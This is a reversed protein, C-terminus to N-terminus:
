SDESGEAAAPDFDPDDDLDQGDDSYYWPEEGGPAFRDPRRTQRRPRDTRREAQRDAPRVGPAPDGPGAGGLADPGLDGQVEAAAPRRGRRPAPQGGERRALPPRGPRRGRAPAYADPQQDPFVVYPYNALHRPLPRQTEAPRDEEETTRRRAGGEQARIGPPMGEEPRQRAGQPAEPPTRRVRGTGPGRFDQPILRGGAPLPPTRGRPPTQQENTAAGRRRGPPTDGGTAAQRPQGMGQEDFQVRRPPRREPEAPAPIAPAYAPRHRPRQPGPQAPLPMPQPLPPPPAPPAAVAAGAGAMGGGGGGGGGGGPPPPGGPGGGGGGPAPPAPPPPPPAPPGAAAGGGPGAGAGAGIGTPLAAPLPINEAFEDGEMLLDEQPKPEYAQQHDGYPKLRDISVVKTGKVHTWDPHPAIRVMTESGTPESCVTWPGTYRVTLKRPTGDKAAPTFLFVKAGPVFSKRDRHYQRRQRRVAELGEKRVFEHARHIRENLRRVYEHHNRQGKLLEDEPARFMMDLPQSCNRGFLIQYPAMGTSRCVATRIAMLAWPLAEEWSHKDQQVMVKLMPGLDRHMREVQGNGKPNYGGTTTTQIGLLKAVDTFLGSTFQRGCDSHISEPPGYRAFIERELTRVAEEATARKLPFAEVWKSFADRCTLIWEAGTVRGKNLPGVFDIHLRQFPYGVQPSVLTHRQDKQGAQKAQCSICARVYGDVETWMHPFYCYARLRKVTAETAQHGGSAHALRIAEDWLAKPLVPREASGYASWNPDTRVLVDDQNLSLRQFEGALAQGIRSLGRVTFHDPPAQQHVWRRAKAVDEDERQLKRIEEAGLQPRAFSDKEGTQDGEMSPGAALITRRSTPEREPYGYRSLGDANTHKAGARHEVRFNFDAMSTLWRDIISSPPELTQCYRLADNDTRWRFREAHRLYYAYKNMYFMGAYLEGKTSPWNRQHRNLTKSKYAIVVEQGKQEQSLVGSIQDKSFDTDLTFEGAKPGRFYPFGMVPAHTLRRKLEDFAAEMQSTVVLPRKEGTRDTKGIVETWPKAIAAYNPIHDRYYGVLGLFARAETKLKPLPWKQVAEKYSDMPRVGNEDLTHGLYTVESSFFSCKRPNLKLGADRYAQLTVRLGDLHSQLDPSHVVGDDLFSVAVSDPIEKLVLDVLRCYTAPGNTLGFGLRKQQFSGFPTAFATKEKDGEEMEVCHFAGSMDVGSFIRSGALRALTDSITPMPFSDKKTIDNLRRWDICWRITGDKKRAAVLNSSWPSNSTEIVGHRLWEELQKRLSDELQPSVPRYRCKIPPVDETIIRHRLLHTHGYSGDHSFLDWFELLVNVAQRREAPTTLCSKRDLEFAKQIWDRKQSETVAAEGERMLQDYYRKKAMKQEYTSGESAKSRRDAVQKARAAAEQRYGGSGLSGVLGPRDPEDRAEDAEWFAGVYEGSKLIAEQDSLNWVAVPIHGEATCRLLTDRCPFVQRSYGGDGGQLIGEGPACTGAAVAPVCAAIFTLSRPPLTTRQRSYVSHSGRSVAPGFRDSTARLPVERGRIRLTGRSHLQDWGQLKMWPGSLNIAMSLGRVVIPRFPYAWETGTVQLVLDRSTEGLIEMSTGKKATGITTSSLIRLDEPRLGLAKSFDESIASRWVNGSDILARVRLLRHGCGVTVTLYRGCARGAEEEPHRKRRSVHALFQSMETRGNAPRNGHFNTKVRERHGIAVRAVAPSRGEEPPAPAVRISGASRPPSPSPSSDRSRFSSPSRPSYSGVFAAAVVPLSQASARTVLM